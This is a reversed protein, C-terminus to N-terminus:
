GRNLTIDHRVAVREQAKGTRLARRPGSRPRAPHAKSAWRWEIRSSLTRSRQKGARTEPGENFKEFAAKQEAAKQSFFRYIETAQDLIDRYRPQLLEKSIRESMAHRSASPRPAVEAPDRYRHILKHQRSIEAFVREVNAASQDFPPIHLSYKRNIRDIVASLDTSVEPFDGILLRDAYPVLERHYSIYERFVTGPRGHQGFILYSALTAVPERVVLMTPVGHAMAYKIQAPHHVHSSILVENHAANNLAFVTFTNGSRPFGEVVLDTQPTIQRSIGLPTLRLLVPLFYSGVALYKGRRLLRRVVYRAQTGLRSGTNSSNM